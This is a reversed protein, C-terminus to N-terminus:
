NLTSLARAESEWFKHRLLTCINRYKEYKEEKSLDWKANSIDIM